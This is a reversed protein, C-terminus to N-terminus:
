NLLLERIEKMKKGSPMGKLWDPPLFNPNSIRDIPALGKNFENFQHKRWLGADRQKMYYEDGHLNLDTDKYIPALTCYCKVHIPPCVDTPHVILGHMSLCTLCTNGTQASIFRYKEVIGSQRMTALRGENQARKMSTSAVMDAYNKTTTKYQQKITVSDWWYDGAANARLVKRIKGVNDIVVGEAGFMARIEPILLKSVQAPPLGGKIGKQELISLMKTTTSQSKIVGVMEPSVGQKILQAGAEETFGYKSIGNVLADNVVLVDYKATLQKSIGKNFCGISGITDRTIKNLHTSSVKFYDFAIAEVSAAASTVEVKVKHRRAKLTAKISKAELVFGVRFSHRLQTLCQHSQRKTALALASQLLEVVDKRTDQKPTRKILTLKVREYENYIDTYLPNNAM